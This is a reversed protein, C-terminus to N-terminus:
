PHHHFPQRDTLCDGLPAQTMRNLAKNERIRQDLQRGRQDLEQLLRVEKDSAAFILGPGLLDVLAIKFVRPYGVGGDLFLAQVVLSLLLLAGM